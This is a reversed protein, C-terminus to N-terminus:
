SYNVALKLLKAITFNLSTKTIFLSGIPMSHRYYDYVKLKLVNNTTGSASILALWAKIVDVVNM